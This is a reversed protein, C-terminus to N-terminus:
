EMGNMTQWENGAKREMADWTDRHWDMRDLKVGGRGIGDWGMWVMGGKSKWGKRDTCEAGVWAMGHWEM